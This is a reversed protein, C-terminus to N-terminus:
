HMIIKKPCKEACIGCDTCKEYDIVALNDKVTIAGTECNKECIKCGICGVKCIDKMAAGKEKSMCAVYTKQEKEMITIVHRPCAKACM